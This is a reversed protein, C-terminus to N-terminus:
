QPALAAALVESGRRQGAQTAHSYVRLTVAPSSHGLREAVDVVSEGAAILTTAVWHRLDHLRIHSAIGAEKRIHRWEHTAWSPGHPRSPDVGIIWDHVMGTMAHQWAQHRRLEEVASPSIAVVRTQRTKTTKEALGGVETMARMISVTGGDWDVDSWKLGVLEGRRAGTEVALTILMGVNRGRLRAIRVATVAQENSPPAHRKSEAGTPPESDRAVNRNTIGVFQARRLAGSLLNRAQRKSSKSQGEMSAMLEEVHIGSLRSVRLRGIAPVIWDRALGDYRKATATALRPRKHAIFTQLWQEVTPDAAGDTSAHLLVAESAAKVAAKKTVATGSIRGYTRRGNAGVSPRGDSVQWRWAGSELQTITAM